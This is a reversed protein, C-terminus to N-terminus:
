KEIRALNWQQKWLKCNSVSFCDYEDQDKLKCTDNTEASRVDTQNKKEGFIRRCISLRAGM